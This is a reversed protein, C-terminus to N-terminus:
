PRSRHRPPALSFISQNKPGIVEVMMAATDPKKNGDNGRLRSDM